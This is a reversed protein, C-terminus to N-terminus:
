FSIRKNGTISVIDVLQFNAAHLIILYAIYCNKKFRYIAQLQKQLKYAVHSDSIGHDRDFPCYSQTCGINKM